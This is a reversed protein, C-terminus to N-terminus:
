RLITMRSSSERGDTFRVKYFYVGSAVVTGDDRRGDWRAENTGARAQITMTRLIQGGVAFIRLTVSGASASLFRITTEPNFPNPFNGELRSAGPSNAGSPIDVASVTANDQINYLPGFTGTQFGGLANWNGTMNPDTACPWCKGSDAAAGTRAGRCSTLFKYLIQMREQIGSHLYNPASPPVGAKRVFQISFGYSLAKNRDKDTVADREAMTAIAAADTVGGNLPYFAANQATPAGDKALADVHNPGPCAGDVPYSYGATLGPGALPNAFRDDLSPYPIGGWGMVTAVGLVNQGFSTRRTASGFPPNMLSNLYDDGSVFICRDGGNTGTSGNWWEELLRADQEDDLIGARTGGSQILIRYWAALSDRIGYENMNPFYNTHHYVHQNDPPGTLEHGGINQGYGFSQQLRYRDARVGLGRLAQRVPDPIGPGPVGGGASGWGTYSGDLDLLPTNTRGALLSGVSGPAYVGPLVGWEMIDPAVASGGPLTPLDQIEGAGANGQFQYAVTGAADVAKLYYQFRTGRPLFALSNYAPVGNITFGGPLNLGAKDRPPWDFRFASQMVTTDSAVIHVDDVDLESSDFPSWNRTAPDFLRYIIRPAGFSANYAGNTRAIALGGGVTKDFGSHWNIGMGKSRLGTHIRVLMSDGSASNMNDNIAIPPGTSTGRIGPWCPPTACNLGTMTGDVFTSQPALGPFVGFVPVSPVGTVAFVGFDDFYLGFSLPTCNAGDPAMSTLCRLWHRLQVSDAQAAEPIEDTVTTWAQEGGTRLSGDPNSNQWPSWAGSKYVRFESYQYYGSGDPIDLYHDWEAYLSATGPPVPFAPEVLAMMANAPLFPDAFSWISDQSTAKGLSCEDQDVLSAGLELTACVTSCSPAYGSCLYLPPNCQQKGTTDSPNTKYSYTGLYLDRWAGAYDLAYTTIAVGSIPTGSITATYNRNGRLLGVMGGPTSPRRVAHKPGGSASAPVPALAILLIFVIGLISKMSGGRGVLVGTRSGKFVTEATRTM